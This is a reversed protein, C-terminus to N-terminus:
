FSFVTWVIKSMDVLPKREKIMDAYERIKAHDPFKVKASPHDNLM